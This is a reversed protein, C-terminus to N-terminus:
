FRRHGIWNADQSVQDITKSLSDIQAGIPITCGYYYEVRKKLSGRLEIITVTSNDTWWETCGDTEFLYAAKMTRFGSREIALELTAVDSLPITANQEGKAVVEREGEFAVRGDAFVQVTYVPCIGLCGSRHM